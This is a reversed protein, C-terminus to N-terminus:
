HSNGKDRKIGENSITGDCVVNKEATEQKQLDGKSWDKKSINRNMFFNRLTNPLYMAIFSANPIKLNVVFFQEDYILSESPPINLITINWYTFIM